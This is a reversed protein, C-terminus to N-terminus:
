RGGGVTFSFLAGREDRCGAVVVCVFWVGGGLGGGGGGGSVGHVVGGGLGGGGGGGSVGHVVGGGLGGGGGSGSVGHVVDVLVVVDFENFNLFEEGTQVTVTILFLCVRTGGIGIDQGQNDAVARYPFLIPFETGGDGGVVLM